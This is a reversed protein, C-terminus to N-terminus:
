IYEKIKNPLIKDDINMKIINKNSSLVPIRDIINKPETYNDLETYIFTIFRTNKKFDTLMQKLLSTYEFTSGNNIWILEIGIHGVQNKISILFNYIENYHKNHTSIMISISKDPQIYQKPLQINNMVDYSKKTYSWEKYAYVKGHGTYELGTHHIPLFYYSPYVIFDKYNKEKLLNTLLVPGVTQWANKGTKKISVQNKKIFNIAELCIPHNKTFAMTGTAVLDAKAEENEYGAFSNGKELLYDFPEICISDADLFLGGYHYLIEWRIIDAKGNIEEIEDIRQQCQFVLKRKIIENKDWFIYEYDPHKDKWTKMFKTPCPTTGIWLQHIIKPINTSKKESFDLNIIEKQKIKKEIKQLSIQFLEEYENYLNKGWLTSDTNICAFEFPYPIIIKMNQKKLYQDITNTQVDLNTYDWNLITDYSSKNYINFVMSLMTNAEIFTMGKYNYINGIITEEPLIAIIGVFVDWNNHIKLFSKIIDYKKYFDPKFACDDEFVTLTDLNCRKANYILNYYSLGCALWAPSNKVAPFIKYEPIFTQKNFDIMRQPTEILHLCYLTDPTLDYDLNNINTKLSINPVISLNKKVIFKLRDQLLHKAVNIEKLKNEYNEKQLYHDIINYLQNMNSLNKNIEDFYIVSDKYLDMNYWDGTGCKETIVIKNYNLIENIRFTELACDEYYHLNIIIKSDNIYQEKQSGFVAYEIKINNYKKKLDALINLRRENIGGYFLIDYKCEDYSKSKITNDLYLPFPAYFVNKLPVTPYNCYNKISFDWIFKSKELLSIYDPTFCNSTSQGLQYVIFNKPYYHINAHITNGCNCIIYLENISSKICSDKTLTYIIKVPIDSIQNIIKLLNISISEVIFSTVLYIKTIETEKNIKTKGISNNILINKSIEINIAKNTQINNSNNLLYGGWYGLETGTYYGGRKCSVMLCLKEYDSVNDLINLNVNSIYRGFLQNRINDYDVSNIVVHVDENNDTLKDLISLFIKNNKLFTDDIYVYISNELNPDIKFNYLCYLHFGHHEFHEKNKFTGFMEINKKTSPLQSVLTASMDREEYFSNPCTLTSYQKIKTFMQTDRADNINDLSVVLKKGTHLAAAFATCTQYLADSLTGTLKIYLFGM